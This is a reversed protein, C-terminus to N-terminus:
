FLNVKDLTSAANCMWDSLQTSNPMKNRKLIPFEIVRSDDSGEKTHMIHRNIYKYFNTCDANIEQLLSINPPQGHNALYQYARSLFNISQM